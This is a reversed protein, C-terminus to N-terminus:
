TKTPTPTRRFIAPKLSDHTHWKAAGSKFEPEKFVEDINENIAVIRSPFEFGDECLLFFFMPPSTQIVNRKNQHGSLPASVKETQSCSWCGPKRYKVLSFTFQFILYAENWVKWKEYDSKEMVTAFISECFWFDFVTNYVSDM